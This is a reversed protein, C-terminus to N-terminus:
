NWMQTDVASSNTSQIKLKQFIKKTFHFSGAFAQQPFWRLSKGFVLIPFKWREVKYSEMTWKFTPNAM